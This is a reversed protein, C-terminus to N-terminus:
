DQTSSQFTVTNIASSGVIHPITVHVSYTGPVINFVVPGNVGINYLENSAAEIDPYDQSDGITYTGSLQCYATSSSLTLILIVLFKKVSKILLTEPKM